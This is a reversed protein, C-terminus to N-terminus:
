KSLEERLLRLSRSLKSRVGGSTLGTIDAIQGSKFGAVASLLVITREEDKLKSVAQQLELSLTLNEASADALAPVFDDLPVTKQIERKKLRARCENALVTFFYAKFADDKKINLIHKYVSLAADQVADEADERVKLMCLAFRYFDKAYMGYLEAFAQADGQKAKELTSAM